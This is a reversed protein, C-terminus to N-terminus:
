NQSEEGPNNKLNKLTDPGLLECLSQLQLSVINHVYGNMEILTASFTHKSIVRM